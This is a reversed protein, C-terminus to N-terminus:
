IQNREKGYLKDKMYTVEGNASLINHTLIKRSHINEKIAKMLSKHIALFEIAVGDIMIEVPTM